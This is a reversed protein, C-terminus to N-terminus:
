KEMIEKKARFNHFVDKMYLTCLDKMYHLINLNKRIKFILWM